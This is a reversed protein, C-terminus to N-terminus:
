FKVISSMKNFNEAEAIEPLAENAQNEPLYNSFRQFAASLLGPAPLTKEL